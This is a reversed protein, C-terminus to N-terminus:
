NNNLLPNLFVLSLKESLYKITWLISLIWIFLIKDNSNNCAVLM